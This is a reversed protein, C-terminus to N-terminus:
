GMLYRRGSRRLGLLGALASGLLLLSAPAPVTQIDLYAQFGGTGEKSVFGSDTYAAYDAMAMLGYSELVGGLGIRCLHRSTGNIGPITGSLM